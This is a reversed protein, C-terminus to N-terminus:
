NQIGYAKHKSLQNQYFRRCSRRIEVKGGDYKKLLNRGARPPSEAGIFFIIFLQYFYQYMTCQYWWLNDLLGNAYWVFVVKDFFTQNCIYHVM